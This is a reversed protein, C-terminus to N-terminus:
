TVESSSLENADNGFTACMEVAWQYVANAIRWLDDTSLLEVNVEADDYRM